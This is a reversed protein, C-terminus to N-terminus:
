HHKKTVDTKNQKDEAGVGGVSRLHILYTLAQRNLDLHTKKESYLNFHLSEKSTKM